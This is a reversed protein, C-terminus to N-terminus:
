SAKQSSFTERRELLLAGGLVWGMSIFLGMLAGGLIMLTRRPKVPHADAIPQGVLHFSKAGKADFSLSKLRELKTQKEEIGKAYAADDNRNKLAMIMPDHEIRYAQANLASIQKEFKLTHPQSRMLETEKELYKSGRLYLNSQNGKVDIVLDRHTVSNTLRPDVVNLHKAILLAKSLTEIRIARDRLDRKELEDMKSKIQLLKLRQADELRKVRSERVLKAQNIAGQIETELKMQKSHVLARQDQVIDDIVKQNIYNLYAFNKKALPDFSISSTILEAEVSNDQFPDKFDGKMHRLTNVQYMSALRNLQNIREKETRFSQHRFSPTQEIYALVNSKKSLEKVFLNFLQKDNLRSDTNIKLNQYELMQPPFLETKVQYQPKMIMAILMALLTSLGTMMLVFKRKAYVAAALEFLDIQQEAGQQENMMLLYQPNVALHQHGEKKDDM